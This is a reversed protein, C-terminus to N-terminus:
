SSDGDGDSSIGLSRQRLQEGAVPCFSEVSLSRLEACDLNATEEDDRDRELEDARAIQRLIEQEREVLVQERRETDVRREEVMTTIREELTDITKSNTRNATVCELTEGAQTELKAATEGERTLSGKLQWGLIIIALAMGGAIYPNM